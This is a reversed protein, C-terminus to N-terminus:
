STFTSIVSYRDVNGGTLTTRGCRLWAHAIFGDPSEEGKAVGLSLSAPLKRRRLLMWGALAQALCTGVWRARAAVAEVAWGVRAARALREPDVDGSGGDTTLGFARATWRFPLLLIALRMVVLWFAAEILMLRDSWSLTALKRLPTPSM